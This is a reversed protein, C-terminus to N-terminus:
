KRLAPARRPRMNERGGRWTAAALRLLFELPLVVVIATMATVGAGASVMENNQERKQALKEGLIAGDDLLLDGLAHRVGDVVRAEAFAHGHGPRRQGPGLLVADGRAGGFVQGNARHDGLFVNFVAFVHRLSFLCLSRSLLFM